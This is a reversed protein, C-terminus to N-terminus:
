IVAVPFRVLGYYCYDAYGVGLRMAPVDAFSMSYIGLFYSRANKVALILRVVSDVKAPDVLSDAIQVRFTDHPGIPNGYDPEEFWEIVTASTFAISLYDAVAFPTGKIQKRSIVERVLKIKTALPFALDYYDLDYCYVALYDLLWEPQNAINAYIICMQLDVVYKRLIPDLAAALAIFQQDGALAPNYFDALSIDLDVISKM